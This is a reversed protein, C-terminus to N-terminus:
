AIRQLDSLMRARDPAHFIASGAVLLNAGAAAAQPATELNVGGDVELLRGAEAFGAVRLSALKDLAVPMFSQGGFGPHVSMVLALEVQGAFPVLLEALTGPNIALGVGAGAQHLRDILRDIEAQQKTTLNDIQYSSGKALPASCDGFAEVHFTVLDAGAQAYWLAAAQPNDIMLHVDLPVRSAAKIRRVFEPGITLNPVFHGDMVDIHWYDPVSGQGELAKLDRELNLFDASLISPAVLM